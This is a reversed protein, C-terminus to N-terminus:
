FIDTVKSYEAEAVLSVQFNVKSANYINSGGKVHRNQAPDLRPGDRTRINSRLSMTDTITAMLRGMGEVTM